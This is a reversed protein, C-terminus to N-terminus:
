RVTGIEYTVSRYAVIKSSCENAAVRGLRGSITTWYYGSERIGAYRGTARVVRFTGKQWIKFRCTRLDPGHYSTKLVHRRIKIRGAPFVATRLRRNFYGRATFAGKATMKPRKAQEALSVIKFVERGSIAPRAVAVTATARRNWVAIVLGVAVTAAAGPGAAAGHRAAADPRAITGRGIATGPRSTAPRSTAPRALAHGTSAAM